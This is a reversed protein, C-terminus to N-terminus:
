ENEHKEKGQENEEQQNKESKVLLKGNLGEAIINENDATTSDASLKISLAMGVLFVLVAAFIIKQQRM